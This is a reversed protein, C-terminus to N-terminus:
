SKDRMRARTTSASRTPARLRETLALGPLGPPIAHLPQGAPQMSPSPGRPLAENSGWCVHAGKQSTMHM